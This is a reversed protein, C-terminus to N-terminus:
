WAGKGADGKGLKRCRQFFQAEGPRLFRGDAGGLDGLFIGPQHGLPLHFVDDGGAAGGHHPQHFSVVRLQRGLQSRHDGGGHGVGAHHLAHEAAPDLGHEDAGADGFVLLGPLPVGDVGHEPQVLKPIPQFFLPDGQVLRVGLRRLHVVGDAPEIGEGPPM